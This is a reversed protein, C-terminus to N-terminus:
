LIMCKLFFQNLKKLTDEIWKIKLNQSTIISYSATKDLVKDMVRSKSFLGGLKGSYKNDIDIVNDMLGKDDSNMNSSSEQKVGRIKTGCNPCFVSDWVDEGCNPCFSNVQDNEIKTGCNPCFASDGVDFGCKLCLSSSVENEVKSGCNPCYVSDSVDFGCNSCNRM